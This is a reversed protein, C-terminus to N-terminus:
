ASLQMNFRLSVTMCNYLLLYTIAEDMTVLSHLYAEVNKVFVSINVNM